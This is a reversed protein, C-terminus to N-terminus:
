DQPLEGDTRHAMNRLLRPDISNSVSRVSGNGMAVNFQGAHPSSPGGVLDPRSLLAAVHAQFSERDHSRKTAAHLEYTQPHTATDRSGAPLDRVDIVANCLSARTGFAWGHAGGSGVITEMVFLTHSTGDSIDDEGISSNLYLVGNQNVDIPTEFDNHVGRYCTGNGLAGWNSPCMLVALGLSSAASNTPHYVSQTFDLQRYTNSQEIFPLIQTLWSMHYSDKIVLEIPGSANQTGPPLVGHAMMYNNLALGLQMLNNKCQTRRVAERASQIAPLLLALLVVAMVAVTLLEVITFGARRDNHGGCSESAPQFM